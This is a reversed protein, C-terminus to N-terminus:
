IATRGGDVPILAGTIYTAGPSVLFTVVDAIEDATAARKMATTTALSTIVDSPDKGTPTVPGPAVTNIRVGSASYEAAWARTMAAIAAKTAGYAAAAGLGITGSMSGINIISGRGRAAMGPAIGAVLLFPARVNAAFLADFREVDLKDTPGFISFGANNVLIDLDGVEGILRRIDGTDALDAAVFRAQGGAKLIEAVVVAGRQGDRGHVIVDAGARALHIAIARGIGSTAGTVLARHNKLYM